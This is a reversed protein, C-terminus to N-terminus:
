KDSENKLKKSKVKIGILRIIDKLEENNSVSYHIWGGEKGCPYRNQWLEKTKPLMTNIIEAAVGAGSDNISFTCCFGDKEFFVYILLTAKHTYRYAWGYSKGFPFKLERNLDYNEKLYKEFLSLRGTNEPGLFNNITEQAPTTKKNALREKFPQFEM